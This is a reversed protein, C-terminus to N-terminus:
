STTNMMNDNTIVQTDYRVGEKIWAEELRRELVEREGRTGIRRSRLEQGCIRSLLHASSFSRICSYM